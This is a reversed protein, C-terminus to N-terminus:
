LSFRLCGMWNKRLGPDSEPIDPSKSISSLSSFLIMWNRCSFFDLSTYTNCQNTKQKKNKECNREYKM